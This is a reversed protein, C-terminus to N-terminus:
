LREQGCHQCKRLPFVIGPNRRNISPLLWSAVKEREESTWSWWAKGCNQCTFGFVSVFQLVLGVSFVSFGLAHNDVTAMLVFGTVAFGFTLWNLVAVRKRIPDKPSEM